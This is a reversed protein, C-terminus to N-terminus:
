AIAQSWNRHDRLLANALVILKRMVATIAVKPPKGANRLREYVQALDPNYRCAVLAPMYLAQRVQARGGRIFARGKWTGSQRSVPALGALSAVQKGDLSGLEPMEIILAFATLRSVGPISTLVDLRRALEPDTKLAALIAAEVDAIQHEIQRLRRANHRKLLAITLTKARNKAATRDKVLAQRAM